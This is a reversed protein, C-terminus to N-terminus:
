GRQWALYLGNGLISMIDRANKGQIVAETKEQILSKAMETLVGSAYRLHKM